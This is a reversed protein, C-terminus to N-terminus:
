SRELAILAQWTQWIGDALSVSPEWGVYEKARRIDLLVVPPDFGRVPEHRITLQIGTVSSVVNALQRLSTGEGHGCNFTGCVDGDIIDLMLRTLDSIYIFDRVVSGDGYMTVPAGRYVCDLFATIVGIRGSIDQGPGYPNSPRVVAPRFGYLTAYLELYREMAGKVVGYSSLPHQPHDEDIPTYKPHGYIAGGSSLYLIRTKGLARMAELLRVNNALNDDIDRVPNALHCIMDCNSFLEPSDILADIGGSVLTYPRGHSYRPPTNRLECVVVQHGRDVAAATFHSGIFGNGGVVIIKM